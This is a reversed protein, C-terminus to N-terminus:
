GTKLKLTVGFTRPPQVFGNAPEPQDNVNYLIGANELNRAWASISWWSNSPEYTLNASTQHYARQTTGPAHDANLWQPGVLHIEAAATLAADNPLLFIHQYGIDYGYTPANTARFGSDDVGNVVFETYRADLVTASLSLQDVDTFLYTAEIEGGNFEAKQSNVTVFFLLGSPEFDANLTQFGHYNYHFIEANVQLRDDLFRNKSGLQYATITEPAYTGPLGIGPTVQNVGGSKFGTSVSGYLMSTPTIDGELGVKWTVGSHAEVAGTPSSVLVPNAVTGAYANATGAATKKEDTYRLGGTLRIASTIPYTAQAFVAKSMSHYPMLDFFNAVGDVGPIGFAAPFVFYEHERLDEDSYYAGVVWSFPSSSDSTLRLEETHLKDKEAIGFSPFSPTALSSYGLSRYTPIYTLNAWGFSYDV